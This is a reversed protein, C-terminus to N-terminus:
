IVRSSVILDISNSAIGALPAGFVLNGVDFSPCVLCCKLNGMNMVLLAYQFSGSLYKCSNTVPRLEGSREDIASETSEAAAIWM